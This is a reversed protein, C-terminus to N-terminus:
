LTPEHEGWGEHQAALDKAIEEVWLVRIKTMAKGAEAVVLSLSHLKNSVSSEIM